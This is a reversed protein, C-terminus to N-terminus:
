AEPALELPMQLLQLRPDGPDTFRALSKLGSFELSVEPGTFHRLGELVHHSNFGLRVPEGQVDAEVTEQASGVQASSAELCIEREGIRFLVAHPAEQDSILAVRACAGLFPELQVRVRTSFAKPVLDLVSFFRGELVRSVVYSQGARFLIENGLRAVACPEDSDGLLRAVEALAGAPVVVGDATPRQAGAVSAYAAAQFGDTALAFVTDETMRLEVGNLLPRATDGSSAAFVSHHITARLASQPLVHQARDPFEPVSPFLNPDFGHITFNSRQWNVACSGDGPDLTWELQGGPIRRLLEGVTRVPLAARGEARVTAPVVTVAATELDSTRLILRDGRAEMLVASLIPRVARAPAIRSVFAFAPGLIAHDIEFRM